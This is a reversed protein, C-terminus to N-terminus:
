ASARRRLALLGAAVLLATGPEPVPAMSFQWSGTGTFSGFSSGTRVSLFYEASELALEVDFPVSADPGAALNFLIDQAPCSGGNRCLLISTAPGVSSRELVGSLRWVSGEDPSFRTVVNSEGFLYDTYFGNVISGVVAGSGSFGSPMLTSDQFARTFPPSTTAFHQVSGDLPTAAGQGPFFDCGDGSCSLVYEGADRQDYAVTLALGAAPQAGLLFSSAAVAFGICNALALLRVPTVELLM